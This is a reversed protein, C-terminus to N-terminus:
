RGGGGRTLAGLMSNLTGDYEGRWGGLAYAIFPVSLGLAVLGLGIQVPFAVSLVNLQPAARGLIALATNAVLVTAIVPAAFRVGLAFLISGARVMAQLGERVHVPEGLPLRQLSEALSELMVVHANAALLLTVTFMSVFHGLATSQQGSTPDFLAAGSLGIQVGAIEGAAEAAGVLLAIGLGFVFGVLTEAVVAAPTIAAAPAMHALGAPQLLATFLVLLGTRVKVPVNRAGLVPAVLLMGGIRAGLLVLATAAGPAFLDFPPLPAAM